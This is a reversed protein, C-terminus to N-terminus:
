ITATQYTKNKKELSSRQKKYMRTLAQIVPCMAGQGNVLFQCIGLRDIKVRGCMSGNVTQRVFFFVVNTIHFASRGQKRKRERERRRWTLSRSLSLASFSSLYTLMCM